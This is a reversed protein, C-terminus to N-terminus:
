AKDHASILTRMAAIEPELGEAVEQDLTKGSPGWEGDIRLWAEEMWDLANKLVQLEDNTM